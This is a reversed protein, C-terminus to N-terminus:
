RDGSGAPAPVAGARLWVQLQGPGRNAWLHYPIALLPAPRAAGAPLEGFPAYLRGRWEADPSRAIGPARLAVAGGLLEPRWEALVAQLPDIEVDELNVGPHDVGELCYLLPGRTLAVRGAADVVRPHAQLARVPMPLSLAVRDGPRWARRLELAGGLAPAVASSAGNVAVTIGAGCWGPIRLALAFEGEGDIELEVEGDWPYRTRQRVGVTRGAVELRARSSAYQHVHVTDAGVGYLLSPLSTVLRLLNPPCCACEFWARRRHRGDDQLPNEYFYADGALSWGALLANLLTWEILDAQRPDGTASLMRQSWQVSAVAACTESCARRSPLELDDGLSETERRSGLGGSVYTQRAIMRAWLRQLAALATPDGTELYLDTAGALYYLTRVAHGAPQELARLPAHDLYYVPGFRGGLQGRGRTEVFHRAAELYRRAGTERFLEVLAMEIVPHGDVDPRRGDAAPGFTDCVLDAARRAIGLLRAEGTCRRLAIAAQVLHGVCYLEHGSRLDSWREARRGAYFTDVYGDPEQAAEILGIAADIRARLWPDRRRALIWSAAEIWKYVDTDAWETAQESLPLGRAARRFRELTGASELAHHQSRISVEAALDWRGGWLGGELEVAGLPAPRLVAHPSRSTDVVPPGRM